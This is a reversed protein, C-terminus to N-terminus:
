KELSVLMYVVEAYRPRCLASCVGLVFLFGIGCVVQVFAGSFEGQFLQRGLSNKLLSASELVLFM